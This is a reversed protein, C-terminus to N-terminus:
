DWLLTKLLSVETSDEQLEEAGVMTTKSGALELWM